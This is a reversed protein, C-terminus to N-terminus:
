DDLHCNTKGCSTDYTCNEQERLIETYINDKSIPEQYSIKLCAVSIEM